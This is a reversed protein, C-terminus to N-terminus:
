ARDKLRTEINLAKDITETINPHYTKDTRKYPPVKIYKDVQSASFRGSVPGEVKTCDFICM